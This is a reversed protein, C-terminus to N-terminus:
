QAGAIASGIFSLYVFTMVVSALVAVFLTVLAIIALVKSRRKQWLAVIALVFAVAAISLALAINLVPVPIFALVLSLAAVGLAWRGWLSRRSLEPPTGAEGRISADYPAMPASSPLLCQQAQADPALPVVEAGARPAAGNPAGTGQTM